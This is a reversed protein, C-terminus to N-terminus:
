SLMVGSNKNVDIDLQSVLQQFLKEPPMHLAMTDIIQFFFFEVKIKM